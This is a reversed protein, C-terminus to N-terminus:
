GRAVDLQDQLRSIHRKLDDIEDEQYLRAALEFLAQAKFSTRRHGPFNLYKKIGGHNRISTRMNSVEPMFQNWTNSMAPEEQEM